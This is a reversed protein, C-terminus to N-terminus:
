VDVVEGSWSGFALPGKSEARLVLGAHVGGVIVDHPKSIASIKHVEFSYKVLVAVHFMSVTICLDLNTENYVCYIPLEANNSPCNHM